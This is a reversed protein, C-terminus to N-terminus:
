IKFPASVKLKSISLNGSSLDVIKKKIEVNMSTNKFVSSSINQLIISNKNLVSSEEELDGNVTKKWIKNLKENNLRTSKLFIQDESKKFSQTQPLILSREYYPTEAEDLMNLFARRKRSEVTNALKSSYQFLISKTVNAKPKYDVIPVEEPLLSKLDTIPANLNRNQKSNYRAGGASPRQGYRQANNNQGFRPGNNNNNNQGYRPGDNRQGFRKFGGTQGFRANPGNNQGIRQNSNNQGGNNQGFRPGENRQGFRKFGGTQGFRANSGNNEGIRQNSNDENNNNQGYRPGDNRQGFRKFGGTQGFRANSGNNQGIRQNNNYQVFRSDNDDNRSNGFRNNQQPRGKNAGLSSLKNAVPNIVRIEAKPRVPPVYQTGIPSVKKEGLVESKSDLSGSPTSKKSNLQRVRSILAMIDGSSSANRVFVTSKVKLSM